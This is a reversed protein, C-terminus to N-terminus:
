NSLFKISDNESPAMNTLFRDKNWDIGNGITSLLHSYVSWKQPYLSNYPYYTGLSMTVWEDMTKNLKLELETPPWDRSESQTGSCAWADYVLNAQEKTLINALKRFKCVYVCVCVCESVM